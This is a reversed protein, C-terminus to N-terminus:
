PLQTPPKLSELVAPFVRNHIHLKNEWVFIDIDKSSIRKFLSGFSRTNVLAKNKWPRGVAHCAVVTNQWQIKLVTGDFSFCCFDDDMATKAFELLKKVLLRFWANEVTAKPNEEYEKLGKRWPLLDSLELGRPLWAPVQIFDANRLHYAILALGQEFSEVETPLEFQFQTINRETRCYGHFLFIERFKWVKSAKLYGNGFDFERCDGKWRFGIDRLITEVPFNGEITFNMVSFM